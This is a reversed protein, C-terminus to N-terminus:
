VRNMCCRRVDDYLHSHQVSDERARSKVVKGNMLDIILSVLLGNFLIKIIDFKSSSSIAFLFQGMLILIIGVMKLFLLLLLLIKWYKIKAFAFLLVILDICLRTIEVKGVNLCLSYIDLILFLLVLLLAWKEFKTKKVQIFNFLFGCITLYM